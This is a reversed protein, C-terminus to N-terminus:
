NVSRFTGTRRRTCVAHLANVLLTTYGAGALVGTIFRRANTSERLGTYQLAWDVGMPVMLVAGVGPPASHGALAALGAATQALLVGSCRACVPFQTGRFFFSREPLQHCGLWDGAV